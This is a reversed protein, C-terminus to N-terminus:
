PKANQGAELASIRAELDRLELWKLAADIWVSAARVRVSAPATEDDRISALVRLSDSAGGALIRVAGDLAQDQAQRLEGIFAPDALWRELTRRGLGLEGAAAEISPARLLVAIAARRKAPLADSQTM